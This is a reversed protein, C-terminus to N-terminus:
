IIKIANNLCIEPKLRLWSQVVKKMPIPVSETRYLLNGSLEAFIEEGGKSVTYSDKHVSVVRAVEHAVIMEDDVRNKFWDSYGLSKLNGM